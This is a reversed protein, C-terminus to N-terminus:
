DLKRKMRRIIYGIKWLNNLMQNLTKKNIIEKSMMKVKVKELLIKSQVWLPYDKLNIRNWLRREKGVKVQLTKLTKPKDM